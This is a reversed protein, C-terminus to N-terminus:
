RAVELWNFSSSRATPVSGSFAHTHTFTAVWGWRSAGESVMTVTGSVPHGSSTRDDRPRWCCPFPPTRSSARTRSSSFRPSTCRRAPLHPTMCSRASTLDARTKLTFSTLRWKTWTKAPSSCCRHERCSVVSYWPAIHNFIACTPRYVNGSSFLAVVARLMNAALASTQQYRGCAVHM